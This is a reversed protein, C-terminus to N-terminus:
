AVLDATSHLLCRQIQRGTAKTLEHLGKRLVWCNGRCLAVSLHLLTNHVFTEKCVRGEQEAREAMSKLLNWAGTGFRGFVEQTAATFGYVGVDVDTKYEKNKVEDRAAAAAGNEAAAADVYSQATADTIIELGAQHPILNNGSSKASEPLQLAQAHVRARLMRLRPERCTDLAARRGAQCWVDVVHHHRSELSGSTKSCAMAHAGDLETLRQGCSCRTGIAAVPLQLVGLHLRLGTRLEADSLLLPKAPFADLYAAAERCACSRLRAAVIM